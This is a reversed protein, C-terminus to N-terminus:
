GPSSESVQHLETMLQSWPAAAAVANTESYEIGRNKSELISITWERPNRFRRSLDERISSHIVTRPIYLTDVHIWTFITDM